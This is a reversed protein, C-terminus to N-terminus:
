LFPKMQNVNAEETALLKEALARVQKDNGEYDHLHKTGKTIGMNNGQIVMEAVTSASAGKMTKMASMMESSLTAMLSPDKPEEGKSRLMDGAQTSISRYEAMQQAIADSLKSDHIRDKVDNLGKIGMQATEHIYQLLETDKM